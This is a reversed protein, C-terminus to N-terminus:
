GFLNVHLFFNHFWLINCITYKGYAVAESEWIKFKPSLSIWVDMTQIVLKHWIYLVKEIIHEVAYSTPLICSKYDECAGLIQVYVTRTIKVYVM